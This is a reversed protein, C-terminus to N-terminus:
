LVGSETTTNHTTAFTYTAVAVRISNYVKICTQRSM